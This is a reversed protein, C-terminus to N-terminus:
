FVCYSLIIYEKMRGDCKISVGLENWKQPSLVRSTLLHLGRNFEVEDKLFRDYREQSVCGNM